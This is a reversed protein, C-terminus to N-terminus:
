FMEFLDLRYDAVQLHCQPIHKPFYAFMPTYYVCVSQDYKFESSISCSKSCRQKESKINMYHELKLKLKKLTQTNLINSGQM